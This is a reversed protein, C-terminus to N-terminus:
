LKNFINDVTRVIGKKYILQYYSITIVLLSFFIYYYKFGQIFLYGAFFTLSIGIINFLFPTNSKFGMFTLAQKVEFPKSASSYFGLFVNVLTTITYFQFYSIFNNQKYIIYFFTILIDIILHPFILILYSILLLKVSKLPAITHYKNKLYGWLNNSLYTFLLINSLYVYKYYAVLPQNEAVTNFFLFIFFIKVILTIALSSTVTSTKYGIQTLTKFLNSPGLKIYYNKSTPVEYLFYSIFIMLFSLMFVICISFINFCRLAILIVSSISLVIAVLRYWINQCNVLANQLVLRLTTATVVILLTYLAENVPFNKAKNCVFVIALCIFIYLPSFFNFATEIGTKKFKSIPDYPKFLYIKRKYNPIFILLIPLIFLFIELGKYLKEREEVDFIDVLISFSLACSSVTLFLLIQGLVFWIRTLVFYNEYKLKLLQLLLKM